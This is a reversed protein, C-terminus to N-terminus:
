QPICHEDTPGGAVPIYSGTDLANTRALRDSNFLQIQVMIIHADM